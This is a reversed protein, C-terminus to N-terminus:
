VGGRRPPMPGAPIVTDSMSPYAPVPARPVKREPLKAQSKGKDAAVFDKAVKKPVGAGKISGSAVGHM